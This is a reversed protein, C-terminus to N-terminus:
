RGSSARGQHGMDFAGATGPKGKLNYFDNLSSIYDRLLQQQEGRMKATFEVPKGATTSGEQDGIAYLYDKDKVADAIFLRRGNDSLVAYAAGYSSALVYSEQLYSLRERETETFLPRGFLRNAVVPRLGLLYYLTPTIDTSFAVDQANWVLSGRLKLPLHVILPIRMIEPYVWYSHGWRGDEGLADGHDSTLIVISTDYLGRQKLYSVFEGVCADLQKVRSAYPAWFGPYDEGNPVSRGEVAIVHTHLNWPQTYAFMPRSDKRGDIQQELERLSWCLDFNHNDSRQDLEVISTSPRLLEKLIPDVSIFTNYEDIDILKQLSNMPYFPVVYQKHLLASGAWIAPESLATGGYRTFANEMVVSEQAFREINPTFSVSKNYPSLYDRRLSDVVVIFINPREGQSKALTEVLKLNVPSVATSPLINTYERLYEHLQGDDASGASLDRLVRFSLDFTAYRELDASLSESGLKATLTTSGALRQAGAIAAIILVAIMPSYRANRMRSALRYCAGFCFPWIVIASLKQLLFDWDKMSVAAPVAWAALLALALSLLCSWSLSTGLTVPSLALKLGRSVPGDSRRHSRLSLGMMWLALTIGATIAFLDALGGNFAIAPLVAKRIVFAALFAGLLHCLLFEIKAGARLLRAAANILKLAAFLVAFAALHSVASLGMAIIPTRIQSQSEAGGISRGCFVVAYLASVFAATWCAALLTHRDHAEVATWAIEDSGARYDIIGLWILPFLWVVSWIYSMGDNRLGPLVPYFFNSTIAAANMLLFGLSMLRTEPRRISPGLTPGVVSMIGLYLYPHFKVFWPLWWVLKFSIVWQYTFPIYALLCYSSTMLIFVAFLIRALLFFLKRPTSM